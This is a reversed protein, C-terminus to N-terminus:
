QEEEEELGLAAQRQCDPAHGYDRNWGCWPCLDIGVRTAIPVYEVAEVAARLADREALLTALEQRLGEAEAPSLWGCLQVQESEWQVVSKITLPCAWLTCEPTLNDDSGCTGDDKNQFPCGAAHESWCEQAEQDYAAPAQREAELVAMDAIIHLCTKALGESSIRYTDRSARAEELARRLAKADGAREAETLHEYM